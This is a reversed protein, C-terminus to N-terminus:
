KVHIQDVCKLTIGCLMLDACEFSFRRGIRLSMSKEVNFKLNLESAMVSCINLMHQMGCVTKSILLIDDAYAICGIFAGCM